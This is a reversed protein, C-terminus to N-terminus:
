GAARRNVVAHSGSQHDILPTYRPRNIKRSNGIRSATIPRVNPSKFSILRQQIDRSCPIAQFNRPGAICKMQFSRKAKRRGNRPLGNAVSQDCVPREKDEREGNAGARRALEEPQRQWLFNDFFPHVATGFRFKTLQVTVEVAPASSPFWAALRYTNAAIEM